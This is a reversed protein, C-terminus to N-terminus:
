GVLISATRIEFITIGEHVIDPISVQIAHFTLDHLAKSAPSKDDFHFSSSDNNWLLAGDTSSEFEWWHHWTTAQDSDASPLVPQPDSIVFIEKVNPFDHYVMQLMTVADSRNLFLAEPVALRYLHCRVDLMRDILDPGFQLDLPEKAFDEQKNLPVYLADRDLDFPRVVSPYSVDQRPRIEAGQDRVWALGFERAERNVSLLPVEFQVDDLLDLRFELCLNLEDNEPMYGEDGERLHRSSWIGKRYLYLAPGVECPLSACWIQARLEPPLSSFLPFTAASAAM